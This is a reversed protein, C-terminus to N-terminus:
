HPTSWVWAGATQDYLTFGDDRMILSMIHGNRSSGDTMCKFDLTILQNSVAGAYYHAGMGQPTYGVRTSVSDQVSQISTNLATLAQEITIPTANSGSVIDEGSAINETAKHLVNDLMFYSGTTHNSQATSSEIMAMSEQTNEIADDIVDYNSNITSVNVTSNNGPKELGLTDTYTTGTTQSTTGLVGWNYKDGVEGWTMAKRYDADDLKDSLAADILDMNNNIPIISADNLLTPKTLHYNTTQSSGTTNVNGELDGWTIADELEGWTLQRRYDSINLKTNVLDYIDEITLAVVNTGVTISGGSSIATTVRYLIDDKVLLDGVTYAKSATSGSETTAFNAFINSKQAFIDLYDETLRTVGDEDLFPM